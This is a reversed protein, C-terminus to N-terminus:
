RNGAQGLREIRHRAEQSGLASAKEYWSLAQTVDPAFGMIGVERLVIPDFTSALKFAAESDGADAARRFLLRAAAIDGSKLMDQGRQLLMAIETPPLKLKMAPTQLVAERDPGAPAVAIAPTQLVAERDPKAPAGAVAPTQLVAERDPKAAADPVSRAPALGSTPEGPPSVLTTQYRTTVVALGFAAFGAVMLFLPLRAVRRTTQESRKRSLFEPVSPEHSSNAATDGGGIGPAAEPSVESRYELRGDALVWVGGGEFSPPDKREPPKGSPWWKIRRVVTSNAATDGGGIGPAEGLPVESKYELRGDAWVWAGGEEFSPPAQREPPKGSPWWKTRRVVTM